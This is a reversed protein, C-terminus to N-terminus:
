EHSHFIADGKGDQTILLICDTEGVCADGHFANGPQIVLSGAPLVKTEGAFSHEWEGQMTVARYDYTHAHEPVRFGAPMKLYMAYPGTERDGWLITLEMPTGEIPVWKMEEFRTMLGSNAQAGSLTLSSLLVAASWKLFRM